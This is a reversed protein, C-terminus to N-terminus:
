HSLANDLHEKFELLKPGHGSSGTGYGGGEPSSGKGLACGSRGQCLEVAVKSATATVLSCLDTSGELRRTLLQVLSGRLRRQEPSFLALTRGLSELRYMYGSQGMRPASDPM